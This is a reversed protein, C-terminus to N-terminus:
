KLGMTQYLLELLLNVAQCIATWPTVFLHSRSLSQVVVLM